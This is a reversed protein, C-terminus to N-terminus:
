DYGMRKTATKDPSDQISLKILLFCFYTRQNQLSILPCLSKDAFLMNYKYPKWFKFWNFPCVCLYTDFECGEGMILVSINFTIKYKTSYTQSFM